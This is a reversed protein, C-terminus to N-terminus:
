EVDAGFAIWPGVGAALELEDPTWAEDHEPLFRAFQEALDTNGTRELMAVVDRTHEEEDASLRKGAWLM